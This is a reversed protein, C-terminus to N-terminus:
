MEDAHAPKAADVDVMAGGAPPSRLGVDVQEVGNGEMTSENGKLVDDLFMVEQTRDERESSDLDNREM